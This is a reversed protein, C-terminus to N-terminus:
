LDEFSIELPIKKLFDPELTYTNIISNKLNKFSSNKFSLIVDAALGRFDYPYNEIYRNIEDTVTKENFFVLYYLIKYYETFIDKRGLNELASLSAEANIKDYKVLFYYLSVKYLEPSRFYRNSFVQLLKLAKNYNKIYINRYIEDKLTAESIINEFNYTIGKDILINSLMNKYCIDKSDLEINLTQGQYLKLLHVIEKSRFADIKGINDIYKNEKTKFYYALNLLFNFFNHRNEMVIFEDIVSDYDGTGILAYYKALEFYPALEPDSAKMNDYNVFLLDYQNRSRLVENYTKFFIAKGLYAQLTYRNFLIAKDFFEYASHKDGLNLYTLGINYLIISNNKLNKDAESFYKLASNYDYEIFAKVGKTNLEIANAFTVSKNLEGLAKNKEDETLLKYGLALFELMEDPNIIIPTLSLRLIDEFDGEFQFSLDFDTTVPTLQLSIDPSKNFIEALNLFEDAIEMVRTQNKLNWNLVFEFWLREPLNEDIYSTTVLAEEYRRNKLYNYTLLYYYDSNKLRKINNLHEQARKYNKTKTYYLAKLLNSIDEDYRNSFIIDSVKNTKNLRVLYHWVYKYLIESDKINSYAKEITKTASNLDKISDYIMYQLLYAEKNKPHESIAKDLTNLALIYDGGKFLNLAYKLLYFIDNTFRLVNRYSEAALVYDQLKEYNKAMTEYTEMTEKIELANKARVISKDFESLNYYALALNFYDSYDKDRLNELIDIGKEYEGISILFAGYSSKFYPENSAKKSALDFYYYSKATNGIKLYTNAANVLFKASSTYDQLNNIIKEAEEFRKLQLLSAALNIYSETFSSDLKYAAEFYERSKEYDEMLFYCVGINYYAIAKNEDLSKQYYNIAEDFRGNLFLTNGKQLVEDASLVVSEIPKKDTLNDQSIEKKNPGCSVFFVILCLPLILYKM